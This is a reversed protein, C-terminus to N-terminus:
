HSSLFVPGGLNGGEFLRAFRSLADLLLLAGTQLRQARRYALDPGNDRSEAMTRGRIGGRHWLAGPNAPLSGLQEPWLFLRSQHRGSAQIQGQFVQDGSAVGDSSRM